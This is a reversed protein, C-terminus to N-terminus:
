LFPNIVTLCLKTVSANKILIVLLTNSLSWLLVLETRFTKYSDSLDSEELNRDNCFAEWLYLLSKPGPKTGADIIICVEPNSIRGFANFLWRHSNINKSNQQKLFYIM